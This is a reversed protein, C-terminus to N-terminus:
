NTESPADPTRAPPKVAEDRRNFWRVAWWIVLAGALTSGLLTLWFGYLQWVVILLLLAFIPSDVLVSFFVGLAFRPYEWLGKDPWGNDDQDDM